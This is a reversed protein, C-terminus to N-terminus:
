YTLLPPFRSLSLSLFFFTGAHLRASLHGVTRSPTDSLRCRVPHQRGAHVTLNLLSLDADGLEYMALVGVFRRSSLNQQTLILTSCRLVQATLATSRLALRFPRGVCFHLLLHFATRRLPHM